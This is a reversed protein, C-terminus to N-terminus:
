PSTPILRSARPSLVGVRNRVVPQHAGWEGQDPGDIVLLAKSPDRPTSM